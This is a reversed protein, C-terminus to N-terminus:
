YDTWSVLPGGSLRCAKLCSLECQNNGALCGDLPYIRLCLQTHWGCETTCGRWCPTSALVGISHHTLTRLALPPRPWVPPRRVVRVTVADAAPAAGLVADCLAMLVVALTVLIPKM